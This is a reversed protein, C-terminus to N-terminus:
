NLNGSGNEPAPRISVDNLNLDREFPNFSENLIKLFNNPWLAYCSAGNVWATDGGPTFTKMQDFNCQLLEEGFWIINGLSLDTSVYTKVIEAYERIKTLSGITVCKKALAKLFDQQVSIRKLDASDYKRYRVLQMAHEGDLLQKGKQLNIYLDQTPDNYFMDQPVDFEIGGVLDVIKVFAELDVVVYGDVKFGTLAALHSMLNTIGGATYAANIKPVTYDCYILTDRPISLLSVSHNNANLNAIIITDSKYGDADVGVILINYVGEKYSDPEESPTMVEVNLEQNLDGSPQSASEPMTDKQDLGPREPPKSISRIAMTIACVMIAVALVVILLTRFWRWTASAAARQPAHKGVRGAGACHHSESSGGFLKM